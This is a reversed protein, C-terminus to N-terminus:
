QLFYQALVLVVWYRCTNALVWYELVPITRVRFIELHRGITKLFRFYYYRPRPNLYRTSIQYASLEPGEWTYPTALDSVPLLNAVSHSGDQLILIVEYSRRRDDSKCLIQYALASDCASSPSFTFILVPVLIDLHRGNTKQFQFYNYRPRQSLYRTSM